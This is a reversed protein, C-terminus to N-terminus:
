VVDDAMENAALNLSGVQACEKLLEDWKNKVKVGHGTAWRRLQREFMGDFTLVFAKIAENTTYNDVQAACIDAFEEFTKVKGAPLVGHMPLQDLTAVIVRQYFSDGNAQFVRPLQDSPNM